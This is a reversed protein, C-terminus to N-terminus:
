CVGPLTWSHRVLIFAGLAIVPPFRFCRDSGLRFLCARPTPPFHSFVRTRRRNRTSPFRTPPPRIHSNFREHTSLWMPLRDVLIAERQSFEMLRFTPATLPGSLHVFQRPLPNSELVRSSQVVHPPVPLFGPDTSAAGRLARGCNGVISSGSGPMRRMMNTSHHHRALWTNPM